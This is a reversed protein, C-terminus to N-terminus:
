AKLNREIWEIYNGIRTYIGPWFEVGCPDPGYSVIGEIYYNVKGANRKLHM